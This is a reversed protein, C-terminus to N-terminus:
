THSRRTELTTHKAAPQHQAAAQDGEEHVVELIRVVGAGAAVPHEVDLLFLAAFSLLHRLDAPPAPGPRLWPFAPHVENSHHMNRHIVVWVGSSSVSQSPNRLRLWLYRATAHTPDVLEM